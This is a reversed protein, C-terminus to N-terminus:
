GGVWGHGGASEPLDYTDGCGTTAGVVEVVGAATGFGGLLPEFTLLGRRVWGEWGWRVSAEDGECGVDGLEAVFDAEGAFTFFGL